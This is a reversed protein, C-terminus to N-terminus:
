ACTLAEAFELLSTCESINGHFCKRSGLQCSLLSVASVAFDARPTLLPRCPWAQGIHNLELAMGVCQQGQLSHVWVLRSDSSLSEYLIALRWPCFSVQQKQTFVISFIMYTHIISFSLSITKIVEFKVVECIECSHVLQETHQSTKIDVCTLSMQSSPVDVSFIGLTLSYALSFPM